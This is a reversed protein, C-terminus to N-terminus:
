IIWTDGIILVLKGDRDIEFEVGEEDVWVSLGEYNEIRKLKGYPTYGWDHAQERITM